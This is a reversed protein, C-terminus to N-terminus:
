FLGFFRKKAFRYRFQTKIEKNMELKKKDLVMKEELNKREEPTLVVIKSNELEEKCLTTKICKIYRGSLNDIALIKKELIPTYFYDFFEQPKIDKFLQKVTYNPTKAVILATTKEIKFRGQGLQFIKNKYSNYLNKQDIQDPIKYVQDFILAEGEFNYDESTLLKDKNHCLKKYLIDEGKKSELDISKIVEFYDSFKKNSLHNFKEPLFFSDLVIEAEYIDKELNKIFGNNLQEFIKRQNEFDPIDIYINKLQKKAINPNEYFILSLLVNIYGLHIKSEDVCFSLSNVLLFKGEKIELDKNDTKILYRGDRNFYTSLTYKESGYVPYINSDSDAVRSLDNLYHNESESNQIKSVSSLKIWVM